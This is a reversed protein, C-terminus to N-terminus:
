TDFGEFIKEKEGINLLEMQEYDCKLKNLIKWTEDTSGMDLVTFKNDSMTKRLMNGSFVNRVVGEISEERDKVLLVLKLRSNDHKTRKIISSIVIFSLALAGYVALLYVLIQLIIKWM